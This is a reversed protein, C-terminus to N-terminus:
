ERPHHYKDMHHSSVHHDIPGIGGGHSHMPEVLRVLVDKATMRADLFPLLVAEEQDLHARVGRLIEAALNRLSAHPFNPAQTLHHFAGILGSLRGVERRPLTTLPLDDVQLSDCVPFLVAEETALHAALGDILFREVLQFHVGHERTSRSRDLRLEIEAQVVANRLHQLHARLPATPLAETPQEAPLSAFLM